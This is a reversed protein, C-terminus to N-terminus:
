NLCTEDVGKKSVTGDCDECWIDGGEIVEILERIRERGCDDCVWVDVAKVTLGSKYVHKHWKIGNSEGIDELAEDCEPDHDVPKCKRHEQSLKTYELALAMYAEQWTQGKDLSNKIEVKTEKRERDRSGVQEMTQSKVVM